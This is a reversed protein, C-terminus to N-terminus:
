RMVSEWAALWTEFREAVRTEDLSVLKGARKVARFAEPLEVGPHVPYMLQSLAVQAQLEPSVLYDMLRRADALNPARSLIGAVEVQAYASDELILNEYRTENEFQRHYAPSTDYSLVIPAEGQTYLGYGESWGPAVTLINPKLKRWFDLYGEEGFVAVTFLLFSRGPSSTAPSMLIIKRKLAPDLLGAWTAPPDRLSKTDYNLTVGGYDFPVLRYEPDVLLKQDVLELGEPEYAQFLADRYARALYTNDLGIAVDARPRERELYLRNYLGGTDEFRSFRVEVGLSKFHEEVAKQLAEGFADYTYVALARPGDAPTATEARGGAELLRASLFAALCAAVFFTLPLRRIPM